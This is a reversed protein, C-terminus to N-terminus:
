GDVSQGEAILKLKEFSQKCGRIYSVGYWYAAMSVDAKMMDDAVIVMSAYDGLQAAIQYKINAERICKETGKGELQMEASRRTVYPTFYSIDPFRHLSSEQTYIEYAAQDNGRKEYFLGNFYVAISVGSLVAVKMEDYSLEPRIGSYYELLAIAFHHDAIQFFSKNQIFGRPCNKEKWEEAISRMYIEAQNNNYAYAMASWYIAEPYRGLKKMTSSCELMGKISGNEAAELCAQLWLSDAADNKNPIASHSLLQSYQWLGEPNKAAAAKKALEYKLIKDDSLVSLAVTAEVFGEKDLEQLAHIGEGEAGNAFLLWASGYCRMKRQEDPSFGATKPAPM